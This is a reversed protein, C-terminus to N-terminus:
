TMSPRPGTATRRRTPRRQSRADWTQELWGLGRGIGLLWSAAIALLLLYAPTSLWVSGGVAERQLIKKDRVFVRTFTPKAPIEAAPIAPDAPM